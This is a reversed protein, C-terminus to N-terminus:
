KGRKKKWREIAALRAIAKRRSSSLSEARAVGGKLGGRRGMEQMIQKRIEASELSAAIPSEGTGTVQKVLDLARQSFDRKSSRKPM